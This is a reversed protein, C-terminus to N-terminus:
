FDSAEDHSSKEAGKPHGKPPPTDRRPTIEIYYIPAPGIKLHPFNTSIHHKSDIWDAPDIIYNFAQQTPTGRVHHWLVHRGIETNQDYDVMLLAVDPLMSISAAEKYGSAVLGYQYVLKGVMLDDIWYPGHAPCGLTVALKNIDELSRQTLMAVCALADDNRDKMQVRKFPTQFGSPLEGNNPKSTAM